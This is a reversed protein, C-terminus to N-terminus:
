SKCVLVEVYNGPTAVAVVSYGSTIKDTICFKLGKLSDASNYDCRAVAANAKGILGESSATGSVAFIAQGSISIVVFM